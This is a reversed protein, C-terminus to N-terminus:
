NNILKDALLISEIWDIIQQCDKKTNFYIFCHYNGKLDEIYLEIEFRLKNKNLISEIDFSQLFFIKNTISNKICLFYKDNEQYIILQEYKQM